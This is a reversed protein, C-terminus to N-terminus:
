SSKLKKKCISVYEIEFSIISSFQTNNPKREWGGGEIEKGDEAEKQFVNIIM